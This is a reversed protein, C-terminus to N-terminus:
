FSILFTSTSSLASSLVLSRNRGPIWQLLSTMSSSAGINSVRNAKSRPYRYLMSRPIERQLYTQGGIGGTQHLYRLSRLRSFVQPSVGIYESLAYTGYIAGRKDSGVVVLANQNSGFPESICVTMWSEWKGDIRSTDIKGRERLTKVTPSQSLTGIIIYNHTKSLSNHTAIVSTEHGTVRTFDSALNKAAIRVGEFEEEDVVIAAKVLDFGEGPEFSLINKEFM